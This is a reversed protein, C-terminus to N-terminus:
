REPEPVSSLLRDANDQIQDIRWLGSEAALRVRHAEAALARYQESLQAATGDERGIFHAVRERTGCILRVQVDGSRPTYTVGSFHAYVPITSNSAGDVIELRGATVLPSWAILLQGDQERLSLGAAHQLPSSQLGLGVGILTLTVFLALRRFAIRGTPEAMRRMGFIRLRSLSAGM